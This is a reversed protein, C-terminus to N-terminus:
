YGWFFLTLVNYAIIGLVVLLMMIGFAKARKLYGKYSMVGKGREGTSM